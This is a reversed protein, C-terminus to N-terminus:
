SGAPDATSQGAGRCTFQLLATGEQNSRRQYLWLIYENGYLGLDSDVEASAHRPPILCLAILVVFARASVGTKTPLRYPPKTRPMLRIILCAAVPDLDHKTAAGAQARHPPLTHGTTTDSGDSSFARM